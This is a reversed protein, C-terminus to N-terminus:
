DEAALQMLAAAITVIARADVPGWEVRTSALDAHRAPQTLSKLARRVLRVRAAKDMEHTHNLWDRVPTPIDSEDGLVTDMQQLVDRCAGVADRYEGRIMLDQAHRLHEVAQKLEEPADDAPMPIELLLTKRYGMGDLVKVWDSQSATHNLELRVREAEGTSVQEVQGTVVLRLGLDRGVRLAEIAAVRERSLAMALAPVRDQQYTQTELPLDGSAQMRGILPGIHNREQVMLDGALDTIRLKDADQRGRLTVSLQVALQCFGLGPRGHLSQVHVDAVTQQRFSIHDPV